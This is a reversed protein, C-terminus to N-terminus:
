SGASSVSVSRLLTGLLSYPAGFRNESVGLYGGVCVKLTKSSAVFVGYLLAELPDAADSATPTRNSVFGELPPISFRDEPGVPVDFYVLGRGYLATVVEPDLDCARMGGGGRAPSSSGASFPSPANATKLNAVEEPSLERYESEAASM